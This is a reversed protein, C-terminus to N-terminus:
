ASREAAIQQAISCREHPRYNLQDEPLAQLVRVFVPFEAKRRELYFERNTM